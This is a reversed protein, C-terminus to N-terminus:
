ARKKAGSWLVDALYRIADSRGLNSAGEAGRVKNGSGQVAEAGESCIQPLSAPMQGVPWNVSLM